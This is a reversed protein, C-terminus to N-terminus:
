HNRQFRGPGTFCTQSRGAGRHNHRGPVLSDQGCLYPQPCTVAGPRNADRLTDGGVWTDGKEAFAQLTSAVNSQSVATAETKVQVADRQTPTPTVEALVATSCILLTCLICLGNRRM